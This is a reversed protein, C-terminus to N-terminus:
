GTEWGQEQLMALIAAASARDAPEIVLAAAILKRIVAEDEKGLPLDGEEPDGRMWPIKDDWSWRPGKQASLAGIECFAKRFREPVNKEGGLLLVIDAMYRSLTGISAFPGGSGLIRYITCGLAWVDIAMTVESPLELLLEPAAFIRPTGPLRQREPAFPARFSETFDILRINPTSSSCLAWLRSVLPPLVLYQPQHPSDLDTPPRLGCLYQVATHFPIKIPEGGLAAYVEEVSWAHIDVTLAFMINGTHLDPTPETFDAVFFDLWSLPLVYRRARNWPLAAVGGGRRVAGGGASRYAAAPSAM